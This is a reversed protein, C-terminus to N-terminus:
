FPLDTHALTIFAQIESSLLTKFFQCISRSGVVLRYRQGWSSCRGYGRKSADRHSLLHLRRIIRSGLRVTKLVAFAASLLLIKNWEFASTQVDLFLGWSLRHEWFGFRQFSSRWFFLFAAYFLGFGLNLCFHFIGKLLAGWHCFIYLRGFPHYFKWIKSLALVTRRM